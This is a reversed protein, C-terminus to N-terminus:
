EQKRVGGATQAYAAGCTKVSWIHDSAKTNENRVDMAIASNTALGRCGAGIPTVCNTLSKARCLSQEGFDGFLQRVASDHLVTYM